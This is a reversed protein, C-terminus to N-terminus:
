ARLLRFVDVFDNLDAVEGEPGGAVGEAYEEAWSGGATAVLYAGRTSDFDYALDSPSGSFSGDLPRRTGIDGNRLSSACKDASRLFLFFM